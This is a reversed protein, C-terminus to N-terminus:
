TIVASGCKVSGDDELFNSIQKALEQIDPHEFTEDKISIYVKWTGNDNDRIAKYEYLISSDFGSELERVKITMDPFSIIKTEAETPLILVLSNLDLVDSIDNDKVDRVFSIKEIPYCETINPNFVSINDLLSDESAVDLINKLDKWTANKM